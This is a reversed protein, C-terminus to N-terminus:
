RSLIIRDGTFDQTNQIKYERENAVKVYLESSMAYQQITGAAKFFLSSTQKFVM